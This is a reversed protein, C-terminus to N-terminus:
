LFLEMELIKDHGTHKRTIEEWDQFACRSQRSHYLESDIGHMKLLRALVLFIFNYWSWFTCIQAKSLIIKSFRIKLIVQEKVNETECFEGDRKNM